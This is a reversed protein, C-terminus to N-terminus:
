GNQKITRRDFLSVAAIFITLLIMFSFGVLFISQSTEDPQNTIRIFETILSELVPWQWFAIALILTCIFFQLIFQFLQLPRLAKAYTQREEIIQAKLWSLQYSPMPHIEVPTEKAFRRMWNSVGVHEQCVQCSSIHSKPVEDWQDTQIAKLVIKEMTCTKSKM